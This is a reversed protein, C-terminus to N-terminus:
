SGVCLIDRMPRGSGTGMAQDPRAQDARTWYIYIYIYTYIYIYIHM